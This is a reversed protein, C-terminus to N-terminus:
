SKGNLFKELILELQKSTSRKEKIAEDELKKVLLGKLYFSYTKYTEDKEVRRM